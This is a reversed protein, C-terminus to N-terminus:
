PAFLILTQFLATTEEGFTGLWLGPQSEAPLSITGNWLLERNIRVAIAAENAAPLVDIWIENTTTGSQVHPWPQWPLHYLDPEDQAGREWVAAYGLPSVGVIIANTSNGVALGYGSDLEGSVYAAELRITTTVSLTHEVTPVALWELKGEEDTTREGPHIRAVEVGQPKPDWTGLAILAAILGITALLLVLGLAPWNPHGRPSDPDTQHTM